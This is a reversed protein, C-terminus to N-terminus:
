RIESSHVPYDNIFLCWFINPISCLALLAATLYFSDYDAYNTKNKSDVLLFRVKNWKQTTLLHIYKNGLYHDLEINGFGFEYGTWPESWTILIDFTNRQIVTWGGCDYMLCQVVLYPSGEPRIVYVGSKRHGLQYLEECDRTFFVKRQRLENYNLALSINDIMHDNDVLSTEKRSQEAVESKTFTVGSLFLWGITWLKPGLM